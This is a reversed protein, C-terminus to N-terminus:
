RATRPRGARIMTLTFGCIAGLIAVPVAAKYALTMDPTTHSAARLALLVFCLFAVSLFFTIVGAVIGIGASLFFKKMFSV